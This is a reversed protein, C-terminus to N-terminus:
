IRGAVNMNAESFTKNMYTLSCSVVRTGIDKPGGLFYGVPVKLNKLLCRMSKLLIGSNFIGVAKIRDDHLAAIYAEVGGCSQGAAAVKDKQIEGFQDAGGRMVWDISQTMHYPTTFIGNDYLNVVTDVASKTGLEGGITPNGSAIVLFGHSAIEQLFLQMLDGSNLCGGEGWVIVPLKLGTPVIRPAYITHGPLSADTFVGAPAYPGSGPITDTLKFDSILGAEPGAGLLLSLVDLSLM